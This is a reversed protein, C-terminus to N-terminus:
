GGGGLAMTKSCLYKSVIDSNLLISLATIFAYIIFAGGYNSAKLLVGHQM